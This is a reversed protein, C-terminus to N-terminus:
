ESQGPSKYWYGLGTFLVKEIAKSSVNKIKGEPFPITRLIQAIKRSKTVDIKNGDHISGVCIKRPLKM